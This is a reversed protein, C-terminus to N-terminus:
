AVLLLMAPLLATLGCFSFFVLESAALGLNSLQPSQPQSQSPLLERVFPKGEWPMWQVAFVVPYVKTGKARLQLWRKHAKEVLYPLSLVWDIGNHNDFGYVETCREM